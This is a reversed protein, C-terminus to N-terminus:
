SRNAFSTAAAHDHDGRDVQAAAPRNAQQAAVGLGLGRVRLIGDGDGRPELGLARAAQVHHVQVRREVLAVVALDDGIDAVGDRDGHLHAAPQARELRDALDELGAGAARDEPVAAAASGVKTSRATSSCASCM